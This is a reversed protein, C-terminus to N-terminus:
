NEKPNHPPLPTDFNQYLTLTMNPRDILKDGRTMELYIQIFIDTSSPESYDCAIETTIQRQKKPFM